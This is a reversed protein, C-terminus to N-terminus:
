GLCGCVFYKCYKSRLHHALTSCIQLRELAEVFNLWTPPPYTQNVWAKIVKRFVMDMEDNHYLRYKDLVEEDIELQVGIDEWRQEAESKDPSLTCELMVDKLLPRQFAANHKIQVDYHM